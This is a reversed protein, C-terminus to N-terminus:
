WQSYAIGKLDSWTSDTTNNLGSDVWRRIFWYGSQNRVCVFQVHGNFSKTMAAVTHPITLHYVTEIQNSDSSLPVPAYTEFTLTMRANPQLRHTMNEFYTKEATKNWALLVGGYGSRAAATAEFSFLSDQFSKAYNDANADHFANSMNQLVLGAETPPVYNSSEQTPEEPTRTKFIDCGETYSIMM